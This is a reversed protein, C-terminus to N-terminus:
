DLFDRDRRRRKGADTQSSERIRKLLAAAPEDNPDQPVLEGRFAKVLIAQKLRPLLESARAQEGAVKTLWAFAHEVCPIIERQEDVHPINLEIQSLDRQSIKWIGATTKAAAEIQQRVQPANWISTLWEPLAKAHCVRVRFATDPFITAQVIKPVLAAIGVFAKTGNGRSILIDGEQILYHSARAQDIPLFRVDALDV